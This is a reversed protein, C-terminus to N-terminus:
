EADDHNISHSVGIGGVGHVQMHVHVQVLGVVFWWRGVLQAGWTALDRPTWGPPSPAVPAGQFANMM